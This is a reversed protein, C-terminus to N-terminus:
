RVRTATPFYRKDLKRIKGKDLLIRSVRGLAIPAVGLREAAKALTIGEIHEEIAALLKETSVDQSHTVTAQETLLNVSASTVGTVNLIAKEVAQACSACHMGEIKLRQEVDKRGNNM